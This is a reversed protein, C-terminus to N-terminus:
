QHLAKLKKRLKALCKKQLPQLTSTVIDVTQAYDLDPAMISNTSIFVMM